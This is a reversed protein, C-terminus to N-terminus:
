RYAKDLDQTFVVESNDDIKPLSNDKSEKLKLNIEKGYEICLKTYNSDIAKRRASCFSM